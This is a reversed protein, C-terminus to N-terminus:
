DGKKMFQKVLANLDEDPIAALGGEEGEFRERVRDKLRDYAQVSGCDIVEKLLSHEMAPLARYIRDERAERLQRRFEPNALIRVVTAKSPGSTIKLKRVAGACLKTLEGQTKNWNEPELMVELLPEMFKSELTYRDARKTM